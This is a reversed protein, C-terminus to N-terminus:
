ALHADVSDITAVFNLHRPRHPLFLWGERNFDDIQQETLKM